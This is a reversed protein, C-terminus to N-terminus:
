IIVILMVMWWQTINELNYCKCNGGVMRDDTELNYCNVIGDVMKDDKELNFCKVNGDMM